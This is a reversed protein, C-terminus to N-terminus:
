NHKNVKNYIISLLDLLRRRISGYKYNVIKENAIAQALSPFLNIRTQMLSNIGTFLGIRKYSNFHDKIASTGLSCSLIGLQDLVQQQVQSRDRSTFSPTYSTVTTATMIKISSYGAWRNKYITFGSKRGLTFLLDIKASRNILPFRHIKGLNLKRIFEVWHYEYLFNTFSIITFIESKSIQRIGLFFDFDPIPRVDELIAIPFNDRRSVQLLFNNIHGVPTDILLFKPKIMQLLPLLTLKLQDPPICTIMLINKPLHFLIDSVRTFVKISSHEEQAPSPSKRLILIQDDALGCARLVPLVDNIVRSGYGIILVAEFFPVKNQHNQM